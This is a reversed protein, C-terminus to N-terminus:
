DERNLMTNIVPDKFWGLTSYASVGGIYVEYNDKQLSNAYDMAAAQNFFGRYSLCGLFLYCWEKTEMSYAPAAIVNWVVYPRNLYTYHRYSGNDPLLLEQHAFDLIDKTAILKQRITNQTGTRSLIQDIAQRSRIVEFHGSISQFYYNISSCGPLVLYCVLILTSIPLRRLHSNYKIHSHFHEILQKM